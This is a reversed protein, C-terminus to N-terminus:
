STAGPIDLQWIDEIFKDVDGDNLLVLVIRDLEAQLPSTVYSLTGDYTWTPTRHSSVTGLLAVMDELGERGGPRRLNLLASLRLLHTHAEANASARAAAQTAFRRSDLGCAKLVRMASQRFLQAADEGCRRARAAKIWLPDPSLAPNQVCTRYHRAADLGPGSLMAVTSTPDSAVYTDLHSIAVFDMWGEAFADDPRADRASCDLAQFAHCMCEHMVIYPLTALIDQRLAGLWFSITVSSQRDEVATDGRILPIGSVPSSGARNETCFAIRPFRASSWGSGEVYVERVLTEIEAFVSLVPWLCHGGTPHEARADDDDHDVGACVRSPDGSCTGCSLSTLRLCVAHIAKACLAVVEPDPVRATADEGGSTPLWKATTVERFRSAVRGLYPELTTPTLTPELGSAIEIFDSELSALPDIGTNRASVRLAESKWEALVTLALLKASFGLRQPVTIHGM